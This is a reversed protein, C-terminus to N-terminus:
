NKDMSPLQALNVIAQRLKEAPHHACPNGDQEMADCINECVREYVYKLPAYKPDGQIAELHASQFIKYWPAPSTRSNQLLSTIELPFGEKAHKVFKNGAESLQELRSQINPPRSTIRQDSPDRVTSTM